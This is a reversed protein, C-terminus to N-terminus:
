NQLGGERSILFFFSVSVNMDEDEGEEEMVMQDGDIENVDENGEEDYDRDVVVNQSEYYYQSGAVVDKDRQSVNQIYM